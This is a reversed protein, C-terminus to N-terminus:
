GRLLRALHADTKLIAAFTQQDPFVMRTVWGVHRRDRAPLQVRLKSGPRRLLEDFIVRNYIREIRVDRGDRKISLEIGRRSSM